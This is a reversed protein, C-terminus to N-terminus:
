ATLNCYRWLVLDITGLRLEPGPPIMGEVQIARCLADPSAYGFRAALRVLHGPPMYTPPTLLGAAAVPLGPVGPRLIRLGLREM